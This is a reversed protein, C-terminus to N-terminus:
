DKSIIQAMLASLAKNGALYRMFWDRISQKDLHEVRELIYSIRASLAGEGSVDKQGNGGTEKSQRYLKVINGLEDLVQVYNDEDKWAELVPIFVEYQEMFRTMRLQLISNQELWQLVMISYDDYDYLLLKEMGILFADVLKEGKSDTINRCELREILADELEIEWEDEYLSQFEELVAKLQQKLQLEEHQVIKVSEHTVNDKALSELYSKGLDTLFYYRFKGENVSDILKYEFGLLKVLRNSLSAVSTSLVDALEGHNLKKNEALAMIVDMRSKTLFASIKQKCVEDLAEQYIEESLM